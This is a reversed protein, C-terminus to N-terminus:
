CPRVFPASEADTLLSNNYCPRHQHSLAVQVLTGLYGDHTMKRAPEHSSTLQSSKAAPSSGHLTSTSGPLQQLSVWLRLSRPRQPRPNPALSLHCALLQRSLESSFTGQQPDAPWAQSM